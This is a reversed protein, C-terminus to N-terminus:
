TKPSGAIGLRDSYQERIIDAAGEAITGNSELSDIIETLSNSLDSVEAKASLGFLNNYLAVVGSVVQVIVLSWIAWAFKTIFPHADAKDPEIFIIYVLVAFGLCVTLIFTATFIWFLISTMKAKQAVSKQITSEPM